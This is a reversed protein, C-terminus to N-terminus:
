IFRRCRVSNSFSCLIFLLRLFARVCCNTYNGGKTYGDAGGNGATLGRAGYQSNESSSWLREGYTSDLVCVVFQAM